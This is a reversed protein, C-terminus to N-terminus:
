QSASDSACPVRCIAYIASALEPYQKGLAYLAEAHADTLMGQKYLADMQADALFKLMIAGQDITHLGAQRLEADLRTRDYIRLNGHLRDNESLSFLDDVYGLKQALQRSLVRANPVVIFILGGPALLQKLAHLFAQPEQVVTLIWTAFIRNYSKSPRYDEIMCNFVKVGGLRKEELAHAFTSAGEVVDLAGVLPALMETMLGNSCGVELAHHNPELYPSITRVALKRVWDDQRCDLRYDAAFADLKTADL